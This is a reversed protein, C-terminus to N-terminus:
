SIITQGGDLIISSGMMFDSKKSILFEVLSLVDDPTGFRKLPMNNLTEDIIKKDERKGHQDKM